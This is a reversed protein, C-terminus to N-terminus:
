ISINGTGQRFDVLRKVCFYQGKPMVKVVKDSGERSKPKLCDADM